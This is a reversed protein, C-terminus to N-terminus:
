HGSYPSRFVTFYINPVMDCMYIEYIVKSDGNIWYIVKADETEMERDPIGVTSIDM